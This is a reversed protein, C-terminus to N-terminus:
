RTRWAMLSRLQTRFTGLLDRVLGGEIDSASIVGRGGPVFPFPDPSVTRLSREGYLHALDPGTGWKRLVEKLRQDITM